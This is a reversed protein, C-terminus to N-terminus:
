RDLDLLRRANAISIELRRRADEEESVHRSAPAQDGKHSYYVPIGQVTGRTQNAGLNAQMEKINSPTPQSPKTDAHSDERSVPMELIDVAM